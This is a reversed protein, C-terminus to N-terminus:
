GNIQSLLLKAAELQAEKKSKGVGLTTPLGEVALEITFIPTHANGKQATLRYIPLPKAHKQAWEQVLSKADRECLSEATEIKSSWLDEILIKAAQYGGDLYVAAILAELCNELNKPNLRGGSKEEGYDMVIYENLNIDLAIESMAKTNVLNSHIVSLNGEDLKPFKHFIVEAIVMGVVSDGLFEYREYGERGTNKKISPHTLAKNLYEQNIFKYNFKHNIQM